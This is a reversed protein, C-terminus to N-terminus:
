DYNKSKHVQDSADQTPTHSREPLEVLAPFPEPSHLIAIEPSRSLLPSGFAAIGRPSQQLPSRRFQDGSSWTGARVATSNYLPKSFSAERRNQRNITQALNSVAQEEATIPEELPNVSSTLTTSRARGRTRPKTIPPQSSSYGPSTPASANSGSRLHTHPGSTLSLTNSQSTELTAAISPAALEPSQAGQAISPPSTTPFDPFQESYARARRRVPVTFPGYTQLDQSSSAEGIKPLSVRSNPHLPANVELDKPSTSAPPLYESAPSQSNFLSAEASAASQQHCPSPIPSYIVTVTSSSSDSRRHSPRTITQELLSDLTSSYPSYRSAEGSADSSEGSTPNMNGRPDLTPSVLPLSSAAV